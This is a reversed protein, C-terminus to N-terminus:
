VPRLGARDLAAILSTRRKYRERLQSLLATFADQEGVKSYLERMTMLIRAVEPYIRTNAERLLKDLHPRYLQAADFPLDDASADALERWAEGAGLRQAASWAVALDGDAIAIRILASGDGRRAADQEAADLAWARERHAADPPDAADILLRLTEPGPHRRFNDRLVAIADAARGASRYLDAVEAPALWYDNSRAGVHYSVRSARVGRDVWELVDADRGAARLRSIIAGYATHEADRSLQRIAEDVDGDQDALELLMRDVEFRSFPEVSAHEIDQRALEARYVDLARQDLAPVYMALTLDPWGPSEARFKVLWRALAVADPEGDVCARAHLEAARQCADGLVGASDDASLMVTRLRTLARQLAPRVQDAAGADLLAEINDLLAQVDRAADFSARYDVLGHPMAASVARTLEDPDVAASGAEVAHAQVLRFASEDQAILENVLDVLSAHDLGALYSDLVEGEHDGVLPDTEADLVALGVAVLHKCFNGDSNHPCSCAGDLAHGFWALQVTYVRKAQISATAQDVRVQLGRVYQLYEVGREFVVPGAANLLDEETFVAGDEDILPGEVQDVDPARWIM